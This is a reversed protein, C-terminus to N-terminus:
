KWAKRGTFQKGGRRQKQKRQKRSHAKHRRAALPMIKKHEKQKNSSGANQTRNEFTLTLVCLLTISSVLLMYHCLICTDNSDCGLFLQVTYVNLRFVKSAVVLQIEQGARSLIYKTHVYFIVVYVYCIVL